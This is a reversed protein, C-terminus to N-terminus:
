ILLELIPFRQFLLEMDFPIQILSKSKSKAYYTKFCFDPDPYGSIVLEKWPDETKIYACGAVYPDNAKYGWFFINDTNFADSSFVIYHTDGAIVDIDPFDFDIWSWIGENIEEGSNEVFTLDEGYLDNRISILIKSPNGKRFIFISVKSITDVTPIFSQAFRGGRGVGYGYDFRNQSQDLGENKVPIGVIFTDSWDSELEDTNKAKVKVSYIGQEIWSHSETIIEGSNFPGLWESFTDDGWDWMYFVQRGNADISSSSYSLEEGVEGMENGNISPKIPAWDVSDPDYDVWVIYTTDPNNDIWLSGLMGYEMNFFGDYGFHPGYSNKIIWYGGNGISPDDKWGVIIIDHDSGRLNKYPYYEDPNHNKFGWELWDVTHFICAVVPGTQMIQTKVGEIDMPNSENIIWYGHDSIPVLYDKWDESKEECPINHDEQFPFYSDFIIGNCDNGSSSTNEISQLVDYPYGGNCGNGAGPLCSLVYQESLDPNLYSCEEKINIVSELMGVAAFIYCCGCSGGQKRAPTTWDEGDKDRWNFYDPINLTYKSPSQKEDKNAVVSITTGILLIVIFIGIIKKL